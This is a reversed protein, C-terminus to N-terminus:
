DWKLFDRNSASATPFYGEKHRFYFFDTCIPNCCRQLLKYPRAKRRDKSFPHLFHKGTMINCCTITDTIPRPLGVDPLLSDLHSLIGFIQGMSQCPSNHFFLLLYLVGTELLGICQLSSKTPSCWVFLFLLSSTFRSVPRHWTPSCSRVYVTM